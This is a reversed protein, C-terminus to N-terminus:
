EKAVLGDLFDELDKRLEDLLNKGTFAVVQITGRQGSYAHILYSLPVGEVTADIQLYTM